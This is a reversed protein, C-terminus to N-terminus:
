WSGYANLAKVLEDHGGFTKINAKIDAKTMWLWEGDSDIEVRAAGVDRLARRENFEIFKFHQESM